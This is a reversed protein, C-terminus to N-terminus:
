VFAGLNMVVLVLAAGVFPLYRACPSRSAAADDTGDLWQYALMAAYVLAAATWPWMGAPALLLVFAPYKLLLVCEHVGDRQARSRYWCGLAAHLLATGLGHWPGNLAALALTNGIGLVIALCRFPAM